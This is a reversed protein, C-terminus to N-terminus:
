QSVSLKIKKKESSEGSLIEADCIFLDELYKILVKNAKGSEPQANVRIKITGDELIGFVETRNSGATIKADFVIEEELPLNEEIWDIFVQPDNASKEM